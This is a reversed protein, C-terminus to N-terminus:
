SIVYCLKLIIDKEETCDEMLMEFKKDEIAIMLTMHLKKHIDKNHNLVYQHNNYNKLM